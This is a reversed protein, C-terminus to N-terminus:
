GRPKIHYRSSRGEGPGKQLCEKELLDALHRTATAKSVKAVAQYQSANIGKEFGSDGGDLLRNLVKIQEPRLDKEQHQLWFLTKELTREVVQYANDLTTNLTDYFWTLWHTIDLQGHQATELAKYYADRRELIAVSMAYLRISQQDAQALAMDTLMRTIRGNGDEFPHLTVFWLHCIGARLLPDLSMDKESENFWHIFQNLQEELGERPPAEFHVVPRDIRGSVVQMLEHGRLQGPNIKDGIITGADPFLCCHWHFLRDMTLPEHQKNNALADFMMEALGESKDNIPYPQESTVGLRRALSSRVSGVNLRENEIASSAVINALMTDLAQANQSSGLCSSAGLLIGLKLRVSRLRPEVQDNQWTFSPWGSKQWIWQTM